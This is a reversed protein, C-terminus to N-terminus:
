HSSPVWRDLLALQLDDCLLYLYTDAVVVYSSKSLDADESTSQSTAIMGLRRSVNTLISCTPHCWHIINPYDLQRAASNAVM